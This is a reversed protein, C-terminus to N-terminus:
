NAPRPVLMLPVGALALQSNIVDVLDAQASTTLVEILGGTHLVAVLALAQEPWLSAFGRILQARARQMAAHQAKTLDSM